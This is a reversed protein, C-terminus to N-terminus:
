NVKFLMVFKNYVVRKVNHEDGNHEDDDDDNYGMLIMIMVMGMM